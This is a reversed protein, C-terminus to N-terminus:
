GQPVPAAIFAVRKAVSVAHDAYREYYRGILAMDLVARPDRQVGADLLERYLSEQLRDMEDDDRDLALAAGADHSRLVARAKGVLWGAVEGMREVLGRFEAPVVPEPHRLVVLEAVHRALAVMRRLDASMRLTAVVTRLDTAVPQQRALLTLAHEDLEHHREEITHEGAIVGDARDRDTHLLALTAQDMADDASDALVALQYGLQRLEAHFMERM